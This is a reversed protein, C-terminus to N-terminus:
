RDVETFGSDGREAPAPVSVIISSFEGTGWKEGSMGQSKMEMAQSNMCEYGSTLRWSPFM